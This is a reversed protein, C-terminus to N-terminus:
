RANGDDGPKAAALLAMKPPNGDGPIHEECTCVMPDYQVVVLWMATIGRYRRRMVPHWCSNEIKEIRECQNLTLDAVRIMCVLGGVMLVVLINMSSGLSPKMQAEETRYEISALLM